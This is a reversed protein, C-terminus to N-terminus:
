SFISKYGTYIPERETPDYGFQRNGYSYSGLRDPLRPAYLSHHSNNVNSTYESPYKSTYESPNGKTTVPRHFDYYKNIYQTIQPLKCIDYHERDMDYSRMSVIRYVNFADKLEDLITHFSEISGKYKWTMITIDDGYIESYEDYLKKNSYALAQTLNLVEWNGILILYM